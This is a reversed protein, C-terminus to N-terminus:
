CAPLLHPGTVLQQAVSLRLRQKVFPVSVLRGPAAQKLVQPQVPVELSVTVDQVVRM